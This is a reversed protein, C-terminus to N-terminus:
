HGGAGLIPLKGSAASLAKGAADPPLCYGFRLLLQADM